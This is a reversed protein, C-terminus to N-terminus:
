SWHVIPEDTGARRIYETQMEHVAAEFEAGEDLNARVRDLKWQSPTTRETWRAEIPALYTEITAESVGQKRLGSRAFSFLEDYIQARDSTRDGEATVWVLDAEIGDAVANYFSREAADRDLSM